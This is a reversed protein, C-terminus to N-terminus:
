REGGHRSRVKRGLYLLKANITLGAYRAAEENIEFGVRHDQRIFGIMGGLGSFGEFNGITLVPGRRVSRLVAPLEAQESAGVFLVHCGELSAVDPSSRVVLTRRSVSKGQLGLLADGVPDKGLVALVIPDEPSRFASAPWEVFRVFNLVFAAKVEAEGPAAAAATELGLFCPLLCFGLTIGRLGVGSHRRTVRSELVVDIGGVPDKGATREM